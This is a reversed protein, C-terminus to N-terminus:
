ASLPPHSSARMAQCRWCAWLLVPSTSVCSLPCAREAVWPHTGTLYPDHPARNLAATMRACRMAVADLLVVGRSPCRRQGSHSGSLLLVGHRAPLARCAPSALVAGCAEPYAR